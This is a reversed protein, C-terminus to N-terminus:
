SNATHLQYRSLRVIHKDRFPFFFPKDGLDARSILRIFGGTVTPSYPVPDNAGDNRAPCFPLFSFTFFFLRLSLLQISIFFPPQHCRRDLSIKANMAKQERLLITGIIVQFNDVRILHWTTIPDAPEMVYQSDDSRSIPSACGSVLRRQHDAPSNWSPNAPIEGLGHGDHRAGWDAVCSLVARRQWDHECPMKTPNCM